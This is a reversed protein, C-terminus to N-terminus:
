FKAVTSSKKIQDVIEWKKHLHKNGLKLTKSTVTYARDLHSHTNVWGGKNKIEQIIKEKFDWDKLNSTM